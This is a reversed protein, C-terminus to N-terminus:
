LTNQQNYIKEWFDMRRKVPGTTCKLENGLRLFNTEDKSIPKWTVPILDTKSKENPDGYRAFNTWLKCFRRIGIDEESEPKIPGNFITNFIYGLEDAHCVGPEKINLLKKLMNVKTEITMKYLFVPKSSTQSQLIASKYIDRIFFNDSSEKYCNQIKEMSPAENGYYFKKIKEGIEKHKKNERVVLNYPVLTEPNAGHTEIKFNPSLQIFIGERSNFGLLFPVHHFNGSELIALPHESIFATKNPKEITLGLVSMKSIDLEGSMKEQISHLEGVPLTALKEYLINEDYPDINLHQALLTEQKKAYAWTNLASGSQAIANNFLGKTLPSLVLFHVAAGGASEGFITINEPDGNFTKVNNKIWKLALVM